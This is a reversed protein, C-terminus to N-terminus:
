SRRSALYAKLEDAIERCEDVLQRDFQAEALNLPQGCECRM